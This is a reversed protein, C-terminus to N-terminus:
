KAMGLSSAIDPFRHAIRPNVAAAKQYLSKAEDTKGMRSLVRVLNMMIGADDPAAALASEYAQKADDLRGQLFSINGIGNLAVANSKDEALMKQFQELAEPSLGNEAYLIGLQGLANLDGPKKSLIETYEASLNSLRQRGLAELEGPFKAEIAESKIKVSADSTHPLTVARFQEWAKQVNIIDAKGQASWARYEEAAKQWAKTFSAGVMTMEVPIWITGQYPVLLQNSFGLSGREKEPVGTDFIVFVHEPVDVLATGIGINEMCALFLISLDDCDGSKRTLTDRPYQIYDVVSTNESFKQFPSTPDVIYTLGLAGLAGYIARGYVISSHLNPYADVYPQITLRSFDAVPPDKATVFAGVKEKRDWTMAHREYLTVPFTRTVTKAEGGLYYTLSIESQLSTNETVELIKNNFVPKLQLEVQQKAPLDEVPLESPYDMFDKISFRVTVKPFSVDLNNKIVVTGLPHTEYSKYASAFLEGMKVGVIELPPVTLAPKPTRAIITESPVSEDDEKGIATVRYYYFTDDALDADVHLPKEVTGIREWTESSVDKTRYIVYNKLFPETNPLWSLTVQREHAEGRVKRPPAPVLKLTEASAVASPASENGEKARSSVRYFFAKNSPLNKDLFFPDPSDGTLTFPGEATEARYVNFRELFSENGATWSIQIENVGGKASVDRPASPTHRLTFVQVRKNGLDGVSLRIGDELFIGRPSRFMGPGEGECGFKRKFKGGQDFVQIRANGADLVYVEGDPSVVIGDPEKFEGDGSGPAGTEWLLTGNGDFKAIRENKRDAVYINESADAAVAVPQRFRGRQKGEKGFAGLFMGKSSLIQVRANGTDAVIINGKPSVAIGEPGDFEGEGSGSKGIVQILKGDFGFKQLRDNETDAVLFVGDADAAVAAPEKLEGPESGKSGIARGRKAGIVTVSDGVIGWLQQNYALARVEFPYARTFSPLPLPSAPALPADDKYESLFTQLTQKGADLVLVSGDQDIEVGSAERFQGPGEGELGASGLFKGQPDFKKLKYNGTDTVLINGRTDVAIGRPKDFGDNGTGKAGFTTLQRGSPAFVRVTASEADLVAIRNQVDIAVDVPKRMEDKKTNVVLQDLFIGDDTLLQVRSNGADAVAVIGHSAAIGTPDRFELPGSGKMGFGRIWKGYDTFVQIRNNGTDSVFVIGKEDIAIGAPERLQGEKSGKTGWSRVLRGNRDIVVIRHAETDAVYLLGGAAAVALPEHFLRENKKKGQDTIEGTFEIQQYAFAAPPSVAMFAALAILARSGKLM